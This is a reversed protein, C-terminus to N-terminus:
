VIRKTPLTLHTYSVPLPRHTAAEGTLRTKLSPGHMEPPLQTIDVWDYVLEEFAFFSGLGNFGPPIKTTFPQGPPLQDSAFVDANAPQTMAVYADEQPDEAMPPIEGVPTFEEELEIYDEPWPTFAGSGSSSQLWDDDNLSM